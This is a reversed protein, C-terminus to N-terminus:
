KYRGRAIKYANREENFEFAEIKHYPTLIASGANYGYVMTHEALSLAASYKAPISRCMEMESSFLTTNACLLQFGENFNKIFPHKYPEVVHFVPTPPILEDGSESIRVEVAVRASRFLFGENSLTRSMIVYPQRNNLWKYAYYKEVGNESIKLIGFPGNEAFGRERLENLLFEEDKPSIGDALHQSYSKLYEELRSLHLESVSGPKLEDGEFTYSIGKFYLRSEMLAARRLTLIRGGASILEDTRSLFGNLYASLIANEVYDDESNKRITSADSSAAQMRAIKGAINEIKPGVFLGGMGFALEALPHPKRDVSKKVNAMVFDYAERIHEVIFQRDLHLSSFMPLASFEVGSILLPFEGSHPPAIRYLTGDSLICSSTSLLRELPSEEFRLNQVM